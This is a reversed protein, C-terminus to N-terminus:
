AGPAGMPTRPPIRSVKQSSNAANVRKLSKNVVQLLETPTFPKGLIERGQLAEGFHDQHDTRYGTMFVIQLDPNLKWIEASLEIGSVDPMVIDTLLLRIEDRRRQYTRLAEHCSQASITRIGDCNLAMAIFRLIDPDDDVVLVADM